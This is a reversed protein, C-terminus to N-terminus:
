SAPVPVPALLVSMDGFQRATSNIPRLKLMAPDPLGLRWEMLTLTTAGPTIGHLVIHAHGCDVSICLLVQAGPAPATVGNITASVLHAKEPVLLLIGAGAHIDLTVDSGQRTVTAGPLSM